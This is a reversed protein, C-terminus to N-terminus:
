EDAYEVSSVDVSLSEREEEERESEGVDRGWGVPYLRCQRDM